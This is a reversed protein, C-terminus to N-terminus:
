KEKKWILDNSTDEFYEEIARLLNDAQTKVEVSDLEEKIKYIEYELYNLFESRKM